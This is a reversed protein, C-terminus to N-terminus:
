KNSEAVLKTSGTILDNRYIAIIWILCYPTATKAGICVTEEHCYDCLIISVVIPLEMIRFITQDKKDDFAAGKILQCITSHQNHRLCIVNICIYRYQKHVM